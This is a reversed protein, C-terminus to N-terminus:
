NKKPFPQSVSTAGAGVIFHSHDYKYAAIDHAILQSNILSVPLLPIDEVGVIDSITGLGSNAIRIGKLPISENKQNLVLFVNAAFLGAGGFQLPTTLDSQVAETGYYKVSQDVGEHVFEAAGVATEANLSSAHVTTPGKAQVHSTLNRDLNLNGNLEVPLQKPKVQDGNPDISTAPNDRVYNYPSWGPYKKALKNFEQDMMGNLQAKDQILSLLVYRSNCGYPESHKAM